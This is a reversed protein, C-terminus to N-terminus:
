DQHLSAGSVSAKATRSMFRKSKYYNQIDDNFKEAKKWAMNLNKKKAIKFDEQKKTLFKDRDKCKKVIKNIHDEKNKEVKDIKAQSESNKREVWEVFKNEIDRVRAIKDM